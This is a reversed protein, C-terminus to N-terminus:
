ENKINAPNEDDDAWHIPNTEIYDWIRSMEQEDRIIREYYNRQRCKTIAGTGNLSSM